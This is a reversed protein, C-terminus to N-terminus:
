KWDELASEDLCVFDKGLWFNLQNSCIFYAYLNQSFRAFMSVTADLKERSKLCRIKRIGRNNLNKVLGKTTRFIPTTTIFNSQSPLIEFNNNCQADVGNMRWIVSKMFSVFRESASQKASKSPCITLYFSKIETWKVKGFKSQDRKEDTNVYNHFFSTTTKVIVNELSPFLLRFRFVALSKAM